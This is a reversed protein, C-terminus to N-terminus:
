SIDSLIFTISLQLTFLTQHLFESSYGSFLFFRGSISYKEIQENRAYLVTQIKGNWIWVSPLCRNAASDHKIHTLPVIIIGFAMRFM